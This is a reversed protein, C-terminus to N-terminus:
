SNLLKRAAAWVDPLLEDIKNASHSMLRRMVDELYDRPNVNLARCTQVLSYITAAAEGGDENGVFLWNKRGIALPRIAREAINNDLRAWPHQIYNKLHPILGCFYNIAEKLKSKPLYKGHILKEKIAAILEEIIPEEKEKRIELRKEPSQSWAVDEILFLHLIKKLIWNRFEDKPNADFFKRRIHSWCPCWTFQKKNALAEYAGYKDSHLVGGYGNLLKIVNSHRRNEYFEYVRYPPNKAHGGSLVWMYATQTKGKGPALMKIPTEDTFVNGSELIKFTMAEALPKLALGARIVWQCLIQRSILIGERYLIESQRYLPLHDAFKKVLIDALLSEDAFCRSLLSEPLPVTMVGADPNKPAAYKSRVIEKIFYSGPRHALKRSIEEGIKILSEGTQPCKKEEEPLDIVQREIPLNEPLTIKDKGNRNPKKREHAPIQKIKKNEEEVPLELGPLYLQEDNNIIRESRKGFVQRRLWEFQERLVTLQNKVSDCEEKLQTYQELPVTSQTNM